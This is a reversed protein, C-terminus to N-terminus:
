RVGSLIKDPEGSIIKIHEMNFQYASKLRNRGSEM